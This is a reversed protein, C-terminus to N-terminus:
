EAAQEQKNSIISSIIRHQYTTTTPIGYKREGEEETAHPGPLMSFDDLSPPNLGFNSIRFESFEQIIKFDHVSPRAALESRSSRRVEVRAGSRPTTVHSSTPHPHAVSLPLCVAYKWYTNYMSYINRDSSLHEVRHLYFPHISHVSHRSSADRWGSELTETPLAVFFFM